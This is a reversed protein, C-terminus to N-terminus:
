CHKCFDCPFKVFHKEFIVTVIKSTWIIPQLVVASGCGVACYLCVRATELIPVKWPYIPLFISSSSQRPLRLKAANAIVRVSGFLSFRDSWNIIKTFLNTQIPVACAKHSVAINEVEGAQPKSLFIPFFFSSFFLSQNGLLFSRLIFIQDRHLRALLHHCSITQRNIFSDM